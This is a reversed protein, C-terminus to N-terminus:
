GIWGILYGFYSARHLHGAVLAVASQSRQAVPQVVLPCESAEDSPALVAPPLGQEELGAVLVLSHGESVLAPKAGLVTQDHGDPLRELLGAEREPGCPRDGLDKPLEVPGAVAVELLKALYRCVPVVPLSQSRAPPSLAEKHRVVEKHHVVEKHRVGQNHRVVQKHRVVVVVAGQGSLHASLHVVEEQDMADVHVVLAYSMHGEGGLEERRASVVLAVTPGDPHSAVLGHEVVLLGTAEKAAVAAAPHSGSAGAAVVQQM